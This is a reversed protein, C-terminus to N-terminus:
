YGIFFLGFIDDTIEDARYLIKNSSLNSSYDALGRDNIFDPTLRAVQGGDKDMVYLHTILTVSDKVSFVIRSEDPSLSFQLISENPGLVPSVKTQNPLTPLDTYYIEYQGDTDLDGRYYARQDDSTLIFENIDFQTGSLSPHIAINSSAVGPTVRHVEKRETPILFADTDILTLAHSSNAFFKPPTYNYGSAITVEGVSGLQSSYIEVSGYTYIVDSDNPAIGVWEARDGFSSFGQIATASEFVGPTAEYLKENVLEFAFTVKSSDSTFSFTPAGILCNTGDFGAGNPSIKISGTSGLSSSYVDADAGGTPHGVIYVLQSSDPSFVQCSIGSNPTINSLPSAGSSGPQGYYLITPLVDKHFVVWQSNPSIIPRDYLSVRVPASAPDSIKHPDSGELADSYLEDLGDTEADAVYIVRNSDPTIEFFSIEGGSVMDRSLKLKVGTELNHSYLQPTGLNKEDALYVIFKGDASMKYSTTSAVEDESISSARLDLSLEQSQGASDSVRLTVSGMVSGAVLTGTSSDISALSQGQLIEYAFPAQGLIPVLSLREAVGMTSPIQPLVLPQLEGSGISGRISNDELRCATLTLLWLCYGMASILLHPKILNQGKREVYDPWDIGYKFYVKRTKNYELQAWSGAEFPSQFPIQPLDSELAKM